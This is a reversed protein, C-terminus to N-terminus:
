AAVVSAVAHAGMGLGDGEFGLGETTTAKVGVRTADLGLAAALIQRMKPVHPAIKPRQAVVVADVNHPQWGEQSLRDVVDELLTISSIGAYAPDTDPFLQGIDGLAAAGLLADMIAHCLVDADSHGKLGIEAAIHVGGLVLRGGPLVEHVDYGVGVRTERWATGAAAPQESDAPRRASGLDSALMKRTRAYTRAIDLKAGAEELVACAIGDRMSLLGVLVHETGVFGEGYRRAEAVAIRLVQDMAPGVSPQPTSARKRPIAAELAATLRATDIGQAVLVRTAAAWPEALLARLVHHPEVYAGGGRKVQEAARALVTRLGESFEDARPASM